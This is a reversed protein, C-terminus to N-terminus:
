KEDCGEYILSFTREEETLDLPFKEGKFNKRFVKKLVYHLTCPKCSCMTEPSASHICAGETIDGHTQVKDYFTINSTNKFQVSVEMDEFEYRMDNNYKKYLKQHISDFGLRINMSQGKYTQPFKSKIRKGDLWLEFPTKSYPFAKVDFNFTQILTSDNGYIDLYYSKSTPVLLFKNKKINSQKAEGGRAKCYYEFNDAEHTYSLAIINGCNEYITTNEGEICLEGKKSLLTSTTTVPADCGILAFLCVILLNKM